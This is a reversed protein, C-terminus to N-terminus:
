GRSETLREAATRAVDIDPYVTIQAPGGEDWVAVSASRVRVYNTAGVPRGQQQYVCLVVGNGLDVIEEAEMKLDEFSSIWDELFGRIAEAGEFTGLGFAANDWVTHPAYRDTVAQIDGRNLATLSLRAYEVLDPTTFEESMM